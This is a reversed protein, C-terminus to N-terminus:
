VSRPIEGSSGANDNVGEMILQVLDQYQTFSVGFRSHVDHQLFTHALRLDTAKRGLLYDTTVDYLDALRLLTDNDPERRGGEYHSLCARTLGLRAAAQEQTFKHYIRLTTLRQPLNPM